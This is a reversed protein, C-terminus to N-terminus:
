GIRPSAIAALEPPIIGERRAQSFHEFDAVNPLYHTALPNWQALRDRLNESTAFVVDAARTLQEEAPRIADSAIRPAASLDDVCHYVLLSCDLAVALPEVLPNYTWVIPHEFGLQRCQRKLWAGLWRDNLRRAVPSDHLPIALPSAIWLNESVHRVGRWAHRLRRAVRALDRAGLTPRRLGLSEVYLVRFGREALQAAVYQKNTRFPHDWDATSFLVVDRPLPLDNPLNAGKGCFQWRRGGRGM